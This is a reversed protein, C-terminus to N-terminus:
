IGEISTGINSPICSLDQYNMTLLAVIKFLNWSIFLLISTYQVSEFMGPACADLYPYRLFTVLLFKDNFLNIVTIFFHKYQCTSCQRSTLGPCFFIMILIKEKRESKFFFSITPIWLGM